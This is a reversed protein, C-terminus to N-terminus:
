AHATIWSEAFSINLFFVLFDQESRTIWMDKKKKKKFSFVQFQEHFDQLLGTFHYETQGLGLTCVRNNSNSFCELLRLM